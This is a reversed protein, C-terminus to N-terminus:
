RQRIAALCDTVRPLREQWLWDPRMRFGEITESYLWGDTEPVRAYKGDSGLRYLHLTRSYPDILWYEPIQAAEYDLYKERWDRAESEPSVIEWVADPAGEILNERIRDRHESAVYTIDPVRRLAPRLRVAVEGGFIESGERSELHVRLLTLIFVALRAHNTSVPSMDIVVGDVFEARTDEDCWADFEEETMRLESPHGELELSM